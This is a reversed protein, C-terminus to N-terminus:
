VSLFPLLQKVFNSWKCCLQFFRNCVLKCLFVCAGLNFVGNCLVLVFILLKADDPPHDSGSRQLNIKDWTVQDEEEDEVRREEEEEEERERERERESLSKPDRSISLIYWM